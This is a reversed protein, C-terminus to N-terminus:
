LVGDLWRLAAALGLVAPILGAGGLCAIACPVVGVRETGRPWAALALAILVVPFAAIAGVRFIGIGLLALAIGLANWALVFGGERLWSVLAGVVALALIAAALSTVPVVRDFGQGRATVGVGLMAGAGAFTVSAALYPLAPRASVPTPHDTAARANAAM